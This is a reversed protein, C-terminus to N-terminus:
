ARSKGHGHSASLNEVIVHEVLLLEWLLFRVEEQLKEDSARENIRRLKKNAKLIDSIKARHKQLEEEMNMSQQALQVNVHRRMEEIKALPTDESNIQEITAELYLHM